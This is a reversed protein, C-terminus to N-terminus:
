KKLEDSHKLCHTVLVSPIKMHPYRKKVIQLLVHSNRKSYGLQNLAKLVDLTVTDINPEEVPDIRITRRVKPKEDNLDTVVVYIVFHILAIIFLGDPNRRETVMIAALVTPGATMILTYIRFAKM